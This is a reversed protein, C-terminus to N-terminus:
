AEPAAAITAARAVDAALQAKLDDVSPFCRTDRLRQLFDVDLMRGYLDGAYGIRHVEVGTAAVGFTPAPGVNVAAPLWAGPREDGAVAARAAYVGAAPLLTAIAALNATPFGLGAGRRAGAVVEGTVRHPATALAAAAEVNGAAVLARLRSSSVPEGGAMIAPVVEFAVGDAAALRALLAVDGGRGAGFRFDEGEVLARAALRDRLVLRYFNEATLALLSADVPQVLVADVGLALLLAARRAPTTLPVPASAPRVIRAPHPDFTLAIAPVGRRRAAAVLQRIIAAHGLHVGDFNGVAVAAGALPPTCAPSGFM